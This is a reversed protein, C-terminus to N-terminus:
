LNANHIMMAEPIFVWFINKSACVTENLRKTQGDQKLTENLRKTSLGLLDAILNKSAAIKITLLKPQLCDSKLALLDLSYVM